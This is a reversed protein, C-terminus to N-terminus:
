KTFYYESVLDKERILETLNLRTIEGDELENLVDVIKYILANLFAAASKLSKFTLLEDYDGETSMSNYHVFVGYLGEDTEASAEDSLDVFFDRISSYKVVCPTNADPCMILIDKKM